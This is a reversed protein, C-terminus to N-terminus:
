VLHIVTARKVATPVQAGSTITAVDKVIRDSPTTEATLVTAEM